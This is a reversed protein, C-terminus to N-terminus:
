SLYGRMSQMRLRNTDISAWSWSPARFEPPRSTQRVCSSHTRVPVSWALHERLQHRWLGALYDTQWYQSFEKAIGGLAPLKDKSCTLKRPAFKEVIQAWQDSLVKEMKSDQHTFSVRLFGEPVCECGQFGPCRWSAEWLDYNLSRFSLIQEQLVWGRQHLPLRWQGQAQIYSPSQARSTFLSIIEDFMPSRCLRKERSNHSVFCGGDDSDAGEAFITISADHYIRGMKASERNWDEESDQVICLSDIWLHKMGINRTITVVDQFTRPMASFAISAMRDELSTTETKFHQSRGWCHSLCVYDEFTNAPPCILKPNTENNEVSIVRTPLRRKSAARRKRCIEHEEDCTRMWEKILGTVFPSGTSNDSTIDRMQLIQILKEPLSSVLILDHSIIRTVTVPDTWHVAVDICRSEAEDIRRNRFTISILVPGEPNDIDGSVMDEEFYTMDKVSVGFAATNANEPDSFEDFLESSYEWQPDVADPNRMAQLFLYCMDCQGVEASITIHDLSDSHSYFIRTIFGNGSKLREPGHYPQRPNIASCAACLHTEM